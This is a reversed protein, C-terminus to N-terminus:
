DSRSCRGPKDRFYPQEAGGSLNDERGAQNLTHSGGVFASLSGVLDVCCRGREVKPSRGMQRKLLMKSLCRPLGPAMETPTRERRAQKSPMRAAPKLLDEGMDFSQLRTVSRGGRGQDGLREIDGAGSVKGQVPRLVTAVSDILVRNDRRRDSLRRLG